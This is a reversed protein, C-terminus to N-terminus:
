QGEDGAEDGSPEGGLDSGDEPDAEIDPGTGAGPDTARTPPPAFGAGATNSSPQGQGFGGPCVSQPLCVSDTANVQVCGWGTLCSADSSCSSGSCMDPTATSGDACLVPWEICQTECPDTRTFGDGSAECPDGPDLGCGALALVVLVPLLASAIRQM